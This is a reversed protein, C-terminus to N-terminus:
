VKLYFSLVREMNRCTGGILCGYCEGCRPPESESYQSPMSHARSWHIQIPPTPPPPKESCNTRPPSRLNEVHSQFETTMHISWAAPRRSDSLKGERKSLASRRTLISKIGSLQLLRRPLPRYTFMCASAFYVAPELASWAMM